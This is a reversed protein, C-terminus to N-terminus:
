LCEVMVYWVMVDPTTLFTNQHIQAYKRAVLNMAKFLYNEVDPITLCTNQHM